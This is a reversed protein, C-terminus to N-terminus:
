RQSGTQDVRDRDGPAAEAELQEMGDAVSRPGRDCVHPYVATLEDDEYLALCVVPLATVADDIGTYWNHRDHSDFAPALSVGHDDAWAQLDAVTPLAPDGDIAQRVWDTVSFDELVGATRLSQLRALVTEQRQETAAPAPSRVYVAARRTHTM